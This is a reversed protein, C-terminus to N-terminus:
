NLKGHAWAMHPEGEVEVVVSRTKVVAIDAQTRCDFVDGPKLERSRRPRSLSFGSFRAQVARVTAGPAMMLLRQVSPRMSSGAVPAAPAGVLNIQGELVFIVVAGSSNFKNFNFFVICTGPHRIIQGPLYTTIRRGADIFRDIDSEEAGSEEEPANLIAPPEFNFLRCFTKFAGEKAQSDL